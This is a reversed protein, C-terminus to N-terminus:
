SSAAEQFHVETIINTTDISFRSDRLPEQNVMMQIGISRLSTVFLCAKFEPREMNMDPYNRSTRGDNSLVWVRFIFIM